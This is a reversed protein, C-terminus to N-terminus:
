LSRLGDEISSALLAASARLAETEAEDLVPKLPASAGAASLIHPLSVCTAPIGAVGEEMFTSVTFATHEDNVIARCLRAICGGIGFNSVGKGEKIRYASTRVDQAMTARLELGIPRGMQEAFLELSMGAAHAGSWHLVESDGHEGLVHAHVATPAVGLHRALRERFRASDLACGTGIARGPPVGHRRVALAPMVDVPNTAFLLVADPAAKLVAAIIGDVIGLNAQMLQLRTQGPKLSVGATIVIVKAGALDEYAGARVDAAHNFAAAHGIDAAESAARKADQDVLVVDSIGPTTALLYAAAAGVQGAGIIGVTGPM